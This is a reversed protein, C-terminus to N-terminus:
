FLKVKGGAKEVKEMATKSLSCGELTLKKKLEGQGLIKVQMPRGKIKGTLNRKLLVSPSVVDGDKFYKELDALSVIAQTKEFSKNRYGKLKPYRKILERIIPQMNRTGARSKQGKMGRGSYTGQKGGRGVRKKPKKPFNSKLQHIQM